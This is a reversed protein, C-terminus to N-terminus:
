RKTPKPVRIQDAPAPKQEPPNGAAEVSEWAKQWWLKRNVDSETSPESLSEDASLPEGDEGIVQYGIEGPMVWGFRQRAQAELYAPDKWRRKERELEAINDQSSAISAHLAELHAKQELYARMSSAYSVVLVALVLV